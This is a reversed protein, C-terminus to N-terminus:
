YQQPPPVPLRAANLDSYPCGQPLEVRGGLVQFNRHRRTVFFDTM